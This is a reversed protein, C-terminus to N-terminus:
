DLVAYRLHNAGSQYLLVYRGDDMRQSAKWLQDLQTNIVNPLSLFDGTAFEGGRTAQQAVEM